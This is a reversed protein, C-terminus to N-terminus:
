GEPEQVVGPAASVHLVSVAADAGPPPEVTLGLEPSFHQGSPDLNPPSEERGFSRHTSGELPDSTSKATESEVARQYPQPAASESHAGPQQPQPQPPVGGEHHLLSLLDEQDAETALLGHDRRRRTPQLMWRSAAGLGRGTAIHLPWPGDEGLLGQFENQTHSEVHLSDRDGGLRHGEEGDSSALLGDESNPSSDHFTPSLRELQSLLGQLQARDGETTDEGESEVALEAQTQPAEDSRGTWDVSQEPAEVTTTEELAAM